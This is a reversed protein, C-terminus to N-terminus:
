SVELGHQINTPVVRLNETAQVYVIEEEDGEIWEHSAHQIYFITHTEKLICHHAM